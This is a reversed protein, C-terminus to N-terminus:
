KEESKSVFSKSEEKEKKEDYLVFNGTGIYDDALVKKVEKIAGTKKDKIKIKDM